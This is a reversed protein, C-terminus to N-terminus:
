SISRKRWSFKVGQQKTSNSVHTRLLDRPLSAPDRDDPLNIKCFGYKLSESLASVASDTKVSVKDDLDPDYLLVGSFHKFSKEILAQQQSTITAGLTCVAQPGVRWVDTPGEVVVISKYKKANDFNYLIHRRPTGPATYYKPFTSKKWDCEYTARAQWGVMKRNHYIPIILRGECLKRDSKACWHVNYHKGIKKPDFERKLLYKVAPHNSKLRDVRVVEGPWNARIENVNIEKGEAVEARRLDYLKHGTLMETLKEYCSTDGNALACGANFCYALHLQPKGLEDDRGYMHNIYCRFRTDSCFPCCITYYEGPYSIKPKKRGTLIDTTLSRNQAEGQNRIKVHGFTAAIRRYLTRNLAIKEDYKM